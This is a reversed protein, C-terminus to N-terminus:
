LWGERFLWINYLLYERVLGFGIKRQLCLCTSVEWFGVYVLWEGFGGRVQVWRLRSYGRKTFGDFALRGARWM